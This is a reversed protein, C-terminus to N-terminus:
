ACAGVVGLDALEVDGGVPDDESVWDGALLGLRVAIRSSSDGAASTLPARATHEGGNIARAIRACVRRVDDVSADRVADAARGLIAVWADRFWPEWEAVAGARGIQERWAARTPSRRSSASSYTASTGHTRSAGRAAPEIV